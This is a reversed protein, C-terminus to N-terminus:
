RRMRAISEADEQRFIPVANSKHLQGIGLMSSGTYQQSERATAVGVGTGRSEIKAAEGRPPTSQTVTLPQRSDVRLSRRIARQEQLLQERAARQKKSLKSKQQTYILSPM